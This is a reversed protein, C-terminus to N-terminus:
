LCMMEGARRVCLDDLHVMRLALGTSSSSSLRAAATAGLALCASTIDKALRASARSRRLAEASVMSRMREYTEALEAGAGAAM